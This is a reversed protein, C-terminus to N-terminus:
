TNEDAVQIGSRPGLFADGTQRPFGTKSRVCEVSPFSAQRDGVESKWLAPLTSIPDGELDHKPPHDCLNHAVDPKQETTDM